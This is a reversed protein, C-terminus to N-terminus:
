FWAICGQHRGGSSPFVLLHFLIVQSDCSPLKSFKAEGDCQCKLRNLHDDLSVDTGKLTRGKLPSGMSASGPSYKLGRSETGSEYELGDIHGILCAFVVLYKMITAFPIM